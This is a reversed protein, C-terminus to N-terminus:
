FLVFFQWNKQAPNFKKEEVNERFSLIASLCETFNLEAFIIVRLTTIVWNTFLIELHPISYCHFLTDKPFKNETVCLSILYLLKTATKKNTENAM